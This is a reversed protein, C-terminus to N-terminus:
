HRRLFQAFRVVIKHVWTGRKRAQASNDIMAIALEPCRSLLQNVGSEIEAPNTDFEGHWRCVFCEDNSIANVAGCLTCRKLAHLSILRKTEVRLDNDNTWNMM